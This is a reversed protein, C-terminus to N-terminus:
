ENNKEKVEIHCLFWKREKTEEQTLKKNTKVTVISYEDECNPNYYPKPLLKLYKYVYIYEENTESKM